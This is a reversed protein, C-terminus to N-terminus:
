ENSRVRRGSGIGHPPGEPLAMVDGTEAVKKLTEQAKEEGFLENLHDSLEELAYIAKFVANVREETAKLFAPNDISQGFNSGSFSCSTKPDGNKVKPSGNFRWWGDWTKYDNDERKRVGRPGDEGSNLKSEELKPDTSYVEQGDSTEGVAVFQVNLNLGCKYRNIRKRTSKSTVGVFMWLEWDITCREEFYDDIENQLENVDSNSAIQRGEEGDEDIVNAFFTTEEHEKNHGQMRIVAKRTQGKGEWEYTDIKKSRAM